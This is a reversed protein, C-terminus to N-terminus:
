HSHVPAAADSFLGSRIQEIATDLTVPYLGDPWLARQRQIKEAVQTVQPVNMGLGVFAETHRFVEKPTGDLLIAGRDLLLIRGAYRALLEIEHEIMIVTIKEERNLYSVAKFVDETGVPDLNSTPEDLVLIRPKMALVSAIAVRQQEGGSLTYPSRQRMHGIHLLELTEDVRRMIEAKALGLNCLGFAIEEWVTMQSIQAEPDSFVVGLSQALKATTTSTTELGAVHVRGEMKGNFSHPILGNCARSLSSKGAANPGIVGVYEGERITLNIGELAKKKMDEYQFSFGEFRIAESM